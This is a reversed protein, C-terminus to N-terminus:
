ADIYEYRVEDLSQDYTVRLHKGDFFWLDDRNIHFTIGDVETMVADKKMDNDLTFGLSYNDQVPSTGYIRVFFRVRAGEELDVEERFWQIAKKTVEIRMM